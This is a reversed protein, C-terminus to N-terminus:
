VSFDYGRETFSPQKKVAVNAVKKEDTSSLKTFQIGGIRYGVEELREKTKDVIPTMRKEFQPHDNKLTVSLTRDVASLHIGVDGLHKTDLLFYLSCNEWDMKQGSQNSKLFVKVNEVQDRLILPLTFLMTQLGTSDPKSLLQQGTMNQIAQEAKQSALQNGETAALKLLLQKLSQDAESQSLNGAVLRHAVESEHGLGLNRIYELTHRATPEGRLTQLPEVLAREFQDRMPLENMMEKSVFHKVRQDSPQFVLKEVTTRVEQVIESAKATEGKALLKRAEYLQSSSQLLKKETAMDAYLMFDSKLIANDLQKIAAELSPRALVPSQQMLKETNHLAHSIDRQVAKFDLAAQSLKKTITTVILDRSQIPIAALFEQSFRYTADVEQPLQTAQQGKELGALSNALEQRAALERGSSLLQEAKGVAEQLQEGNLNEKLFQIVQTLDPNKKVQALTQQIISPLSNTEKITSGVNGIMINKQLSLVERALGQDNQLEASFETVIKGLIENQDGGSQLSRVLGKIVQSKAPDKTIQELRKLVDLLRSSDDKPLSQNVATDLAKAVDEVVKGFKEGHLAEHVTALQQPTFDLKKGAMQAITELKQETTGSAHDLFAKINQITERTIPLHQQNLIGIAQRTSDPLGTTQPRAAEPQNPAVKVVPPETKTLQVNVKGSDPLKGEYQVRLEQGKIQLIAENGPLKEKVTAQYAEGEKLNKPVDLPSFMATKVDNNVQM